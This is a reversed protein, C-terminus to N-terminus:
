KMRMPKNTFLISLAAMTRDFDSQQVVFKLSTNDDVNLDIIQYPEKMMKRNCEPFVPLLRPDSYIYINNVKSFDFHYRYYEKEFVIIDGIQQPHKELVRGRKHALLDVGATSFKMDSKDDYWFGRSGCIGRPAIREWVIMQVQDVAQQQDMEKKIQLMKESPVYESSCGALMLVLLPWLKKM